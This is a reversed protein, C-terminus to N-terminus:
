GEAQNPEVRVPFVGVCVADARKVARVGNRKTTEYVRCSIGYARPEPVERDIQLAEGPVKDVTSGDPQQVRVVPVRNVMLELHGYVNGGEEIDVQVLRGVPLRRTDYGAVVPVYQGLKLSEAVGVWAEMALDNKVGTVEATRGILARTLKKPDEVTKGRETKDRKTM